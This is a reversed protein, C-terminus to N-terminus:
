HLIRHGWQQCSNSRGISLLLIHPPCIIGPIVQFLRFEPEYINENHCTMWRTLPNFVLDGALLAVVSTVWPGIYVNALGTAGFDYPPITM